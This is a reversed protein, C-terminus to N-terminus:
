AAGTDLTAATIRAALALEERTIMAECNTCDTYLQHDTEVLTLSDCRPSPQPVPRRQPRLRTLDRITRMLQHLEDRLAGAGLGAVIGLRIHLLM